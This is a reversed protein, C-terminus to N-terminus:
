GAGPRPCTSCTNGAGSGAPGPPEGPKGGGPECVLLWGRGWGWVGATRGSHEGACLTSPSRARACRNPKKSWPLPRVAREAGLAPVGPDGRSQHAGHTTGLLRQAPAGMRCAIKQPEPLRPAGPNALQAPPLLQSMEAGLRRRTRFTLPRGHGRGPATAAPAAGGLCLRAM